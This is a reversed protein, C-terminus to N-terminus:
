NEGKIRKLIERYAELLGGMDRRFRDKDLKDGTKEDWFRCTDPSIEDALIVKGHYLGFELKFDVLILGRKRLFSKLIGNVRLAVAEMVAVQDPAALGLVRIHDHNVMPDHLADNKLYFEIVPCSLEKGEIIGLRAAMSGAVINRVTVELPIISVRKVLMERADLMRIFHSEIGEDELLQFFFTTIANNLEGKGTIEEKKQGDLATAQDKYRVLLVDPDKTTYLEKAKGAYLFEKIEM